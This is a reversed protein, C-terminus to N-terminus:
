LAPASWAHGWGSFAVPRRTRETEDPALMM